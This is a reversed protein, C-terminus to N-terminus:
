PRELLKIDLKRAVRRMSQDLTLLPCRLTMATQLFYGAYAYIANRAALVLAARIKVEVLRVPVSSIADWVATAQAAALRGQKVM